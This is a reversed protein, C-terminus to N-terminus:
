EMDRRIQEHWGFFRRQILLGTQTVILGLSAIVVLTAYMRDIQYIQWYRWTKAGIGDGSAVFEGVVVGLLAAGAALRLGAFITPMAAPLTIKFLTQARSAGMNESMRQLKEDVQRIAAASSIVSPYFSLIAALAIIPPSGLGFIVLLLPLYAVSPIPYLVSIIPDILARIWWIRAMAVGLFIAPIAGVIFGGIFRRLTSITENILTGDTALGWFAKGITTPPPFFVKDLIGIRSAFEWLSIALLIPVLTALPSEMADSMWRPIVRRGTDAEFSAVVPKAGPREVSVLAAARAGSDITGRPEM